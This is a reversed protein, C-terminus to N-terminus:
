SIAVVEIAFNPILLPPLLINAVCFIWYSIISGFIWLSIRGLVVIVALTLVIVPVEILSPTVRDCFENLLVPSNESTLKFSLM